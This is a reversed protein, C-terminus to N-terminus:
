RVESPLPPPAWAAAAAAAAAEEDIAEDEGSDCSGSFEVFNCFRM